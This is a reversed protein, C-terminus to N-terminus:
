GVTTRRLTRPETDNFPLRAHSLLRNDWILVDGTQWHHVYELDTMAAASEWLDNLFARGAEDSIGDFGVTTLPVLWLATNGSDPDAWALPQWARLARPSLAHKDVKGSRTVSAYDLAHLCRVSQARQQTQVPLRKFIEVADRFKTGSGSEPIEMGYLVAARAPQELFLHDHHYALEGTGLQGDVRTNSFYYGQDGMEGKYSRSVYLEGFVRTFAVQHEVSVESQNRAVLLRYRRLADRLIAGTEQAIPSRLNIGQVEAGLLPHLPNFQIPMALFRL